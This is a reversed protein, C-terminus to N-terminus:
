GRREAHLPHRRYLARVVLAGALLFGADIAIRAPEAWGSSDALMGLAALGAMVAFPALAARWERAALAYGLGIRAVVIALSGPLEAPTFHALTTLAAM